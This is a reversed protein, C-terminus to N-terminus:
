LFARLENLERIEYTCASSHPQGQPNYFVQDIGSQRAGAIDTLLNDGIMITEDATAGLHELALSFIGPEPKKSQARESTIVARFFPRLGSADVKVTQIEEFGNTVIVLPYRQCLYDVVERAQPLLNSKQPSERVYDESFVLSLPHDDIGVERFIRHFRQDRIVERPIMGRDFDLWLQTNIRVFHHHFHHFPVATRNTLHRQFLTQLTEKANTEYDWLTHDLDFLVGRYKKKNPM